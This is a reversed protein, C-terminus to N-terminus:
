WHWMLIQNLRLYKTVAYNSPPVPPKAGATSLITM